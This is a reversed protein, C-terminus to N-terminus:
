GEGGGLTVDIPGAATLRDGPVVVREGQPAGDVVLVLESV